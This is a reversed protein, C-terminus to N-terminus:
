KVYGYILNTRARLSKLYKDYENVLRDLDHDSYEVRVGSMILALNSWAFRRVRYVRQAESSIPNYFEKTGNMAILDKSSKTIRNIWAEIRFKILEDQKVIPKQLLNKLGRESYYWNTNIWTSGEWLRDLQRNHPDFNPSYKGISPLPYPLDFDVDMMDLLSKIHEERLNPLMLPALNNIGTEVFPLGDNDTSFFSGKGGRANPFWNKEYLKNEIDLAYKKYWKADRAFQDDEHESLELALDAAVYLNDVLMANFMVDVAGFLKRVEPMNDGARHVKNSFWLIQSYDLVSNVADIARHTDVGQRPILYPKLRKYTPDSDRGTEHPHIIFVRRDSDDAGFRRATDLYVYAQKMDGYVERLFTKAKENATNKNVGEQNKRAYYTKSIGLAIVPPQSYNSHDESGFGFIKELDFNRLDFKKSKGYKQINPIFGKNPGDKFQGDLITRIGDEAATISDETGTEADIVDSFIEDWYYAATYHDPDPPTWTIAHGLKNAVMVRNLYLNMAASRAHTNMVYDLAEPSFDSAAPMYEKIEAM